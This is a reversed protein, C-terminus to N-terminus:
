ANLFDWINKTEHIITATQTRNAIGNTFIMENSIKGVAGGANNQPALYPEFKTIFYARMGKFQSGKEIEVVGIQKIECGLGKILEKSDDTFEKIRDQLNDNFNRYGAVWVLVKTKPHYYLNKLEAMKQINNTFQRSKQPNEAKGM